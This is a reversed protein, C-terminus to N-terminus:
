GSVCTRAFFPRPCFWPSGGDPRQVDFVYQGAFPMLNTMDALGRFLAVIEDDLQEALRDDDHASAVTLNPSQVIDAAMATRM